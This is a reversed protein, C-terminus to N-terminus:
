NEEKPVNLWKYWWLLIFAHVFVSFQGELGNDFLYTLLISLNIMWWFINRNLTRLFFPILIIATFFIFGPWGTAAGYMVWEGSPLIKDTQIMQPYHNDYWRNMETEVDGFGVGTIPHQRQIDWGAKISIIRTGDNSGPLYINQKAFSIDYNFYRVRNKFTPLAFYSVVPLVIIVLLLVITRAMHKRNWLLWGLFIFASLYFCLLGTRVALVHLYVVLGGIVVLLFAKLVTSYDNRKKIFLFIATFIANAALLSFRVHDNKLPTVISHSQLYGAHIAKIDQLYQYISWASGMFVLLMFAWGIKEWDGSRFEKLRAFGLPLLLLPLKIRMIRSWHALDESWLGSVLPIFFLLTMSWFLPSSFFEKFQQLLSKHIFSVLFFSILASSLLLRSVLLGALMIMISYLLVEKRWNLVTVTQNMFHKNNKGRALYFIYTTVLWKIAMM